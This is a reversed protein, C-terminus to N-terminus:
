GGGVKALSQGAANTIENNLIYQAQIQGLKEGDLNISINTGSNKLMDILNGVAITQQDMAATSNQLDAMLPTNGTQISESIQNTDYQHQVEIEKEVKGDLVNQMVDVVSTSIDGAAQTMGSILGAVVLQPKQVTKEFAAAADDFNQLQEKSFEVKQLETTIAQAALATRSYQEVSYDAAAKAKSKMMEEASRAAGATTDAFNEMAATMGDISAASDTASKMEEQTVSLEEGRMFTRMQEISLGFQDALMRQRAKSMNEVDLGADLIEERMRFLFEEQDESALYTMEMADMQIGFMASLDGMKSAADDFNMFGKTLTEFTQFDMGLESIATAIRGASEVGIDGFTHTAKIVEITRNKIQEMSASSSNGLTTAVAAVKELTNSTAEGTFAYERQLLQAADASDVRLSKMLIINNNMAEKSMNSLVKTNKNGIDELLEKFSNSIDEVKEFLMDFANGTNGLADTFEINAEGMGAQAMNVESMLDRTKQAFESLPKGSALLNSTIGGVNENLVKYDNTLTRAHNANEQNNEIVAKAGEALFTFAARASRGLDNNAVGVGATAAALGLAIKSATEMNKNNEKQAADLKMKNNIAEQEQKNLEEGAALKERAAKLTEAQIDSESRGGTMDAVVDGTNNGPTAM